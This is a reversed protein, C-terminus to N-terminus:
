WGSISALIWSLASRLMRRQPNSSSSSAHVHLLGESDREVQARRQRVLGSRPAGLARHVDVAQRWAIGLARGAFINLAPQKVGLAAVVFRGPAVQGTVIWEGRGHAPDAIVGAFARAIAALEIFRHADIRHLVEQAVLGQFAAPLELGRAAFGALM